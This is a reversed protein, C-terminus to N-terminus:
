TDNDETDTSFGLHLPHCWVCVTKTLRSHDQVPLNNLNQRYMRWCIFANSPSMKRSLHNLLSSLIPTEDTVLIKWNSLCCYYILMAMVHYEVYSAHLKERHCWTEQSTNQCYIFFDCFLIGYTIQHTSHIDIKTARSPSLSYSKGFYKDESLVTACQLYLFPLM